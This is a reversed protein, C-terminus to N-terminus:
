SLTPWARSPACILRNRRPSHHTV